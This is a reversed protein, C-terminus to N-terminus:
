LKKNLHKAVANILDIEFGVLKPTDIGSKKGLGLDSLSVTSRQTPDALAQAARDALRTILELSYLSDKNLPDVMSPSGEDYIIIPLTKVTPESEVSGGPIRPPTPPQDSPKVGCATAVAGIVAMASVKLFDRRKLKRDPQNDVGM